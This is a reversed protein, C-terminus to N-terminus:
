CLGSPAMVSNLKSKIMGWFNHLVSYFYLTQNFVENYDLTIIKKKLINNYIKFILGVM